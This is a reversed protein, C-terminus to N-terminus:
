ACAAALHRQVWEQQRPVDQSLIRTFRGLAYPPIGSRGNVRADAWILLDGYAMTATADAARAPCPPPVIAALAAAQFALPDAPGPPPIYIGPGREARRDIGPESYRTPVPLYPALAASAAALARTSGPLLDANEPRLCVVVPGGACAPEAPAGRIETPMPDTKSLTLVAGALVVAASLGTWRRAGSHALSASLALAAIAVLVAVQTWVLRVHPQLFPRYVSMRDVPALRSAWNEGYSGAYVVAFLALALLPPAARITALTGVAWGLAVGALLFSGALVALLLPAGGPLGRHTTRVAFLGLLLLYALVAWALVAGIRPLAGGAAGRPSSAALLDLGRRRYDQIQWAVAGACLPALVLLGSLAGNFATSWSPGTVPPAPVLGGVLAVAVLLLGIVPGAGSTLETGLVRTAARV